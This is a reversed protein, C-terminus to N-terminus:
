VAEEALKKIAAADFVWARDGVKKGGLKEARKVVAQRSIKLQEAVEETSLLDPIEAQRHEFEGETMAALAVVESPGLGAREVADSAVRIGLEIAQRLTRGPVTLQAQLRRHSMGWSCEYEEPMDVLVDLQDLTPEPADLDVQVSFSKM